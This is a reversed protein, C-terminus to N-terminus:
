INLEFARQPPYVAGDCCSQAAIVHSQVSPAHLERGVMARAFLYNDRERRSLAPMDVQGAANCPFVFSRGIGFLSWFCLYYNDLEESPANSSISFATDSMAIGSTHALRTASVLSLSM